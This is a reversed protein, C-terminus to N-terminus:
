LVAAIGLVIVTAKVTLIGGMMIKVTPMVVKGSTPKGDKPSMIKEKSTSSATM